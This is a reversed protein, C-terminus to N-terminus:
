SAVAVSQISGPGRYRLFLDRGFGHWQLCSGVEVTTTASGQDAVWTIYHWPVDRRDHPVSNTVTIAGAVRDDGRTVSIWRPHAGPPLTFKYLTAGGTRTVRQIAVTTSPSSPPDALFNPINGWACTATSFYLGSSASTAPPGAGDAILVLEHDVLILPRYHSLIYDAVVYQRVENEIFDWEPLGTIGNWLVLKPHSQRLDDIVLQQAQPTIALSIDYFRSGQSRGLLFDVIGPSDSFDFVAGHPGAYRAFVAGLDSVLRSPLADASAYGLSPLGPQYPPVPPASSTARFHAPAADALTAPSIPAAILAMVLLGVSAGASPVRALLGLLPRTPVRAERAGRARARGLLDELMTVARFVLVMVLPTTVAFVEGIHSNDGRSLAKQYYLLVMLSTGVALWDEVTLSRGGRLRAVVLLATILVCLVPLYLEVTYRSFLGGYATLFHMVGFQDRHPAVAYNTWLPIGGTLSHATAFDQFYGIFGSLAHTAALYISFLGFIVVGASATWTTRPFQSWAFPGRPREYLECLILTVGLAIIALSMEPVLIAQGLLALALVVARTPSAKHLV